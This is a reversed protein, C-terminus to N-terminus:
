HRSPEFRAAALALGAASAYALMAVLTVWWPYLIALVLALSAFLAAPLASAVLVAPVPVAAVFLGLVLSAAAGAFVLPYASTFAGGLALFIAGAWWLAAASWALIVRGLSM